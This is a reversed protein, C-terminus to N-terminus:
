AVLAAALHRHVGHLGAGLGGDAPDGLASVQVVRHLGLGANARFLAVPTRENVQAHSDAGRERLIGACSVVADIGALRPRWLAPDDDRAFDCANATVGAFRRGMRVRRVACVPEHGAALLAAVVHSGIFGYGGTVLVRM